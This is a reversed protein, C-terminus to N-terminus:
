RLRQDAAILPLPNQWYVAKNMKGKLVGPPPVPPPPPDPFAPLPAQSGVQNNVAQQLPVSVSICPAANRM